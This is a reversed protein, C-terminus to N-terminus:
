SSLAVSMQDHIGQPARGRAIEESERQVILGVEYRINM